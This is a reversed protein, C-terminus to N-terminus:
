LEALQSLVIAFHRSFGAQRWTTANGTGADGSACELIFKDGWCFDANPPPKAEHIAKRCVKRIYEFGETKTSRGKILLWDDKQTIRLQTSISVIRPDIEVLNPHQIAYDSFGIVPMKTSSRLRLFMHWDERPITLATDKQLSSLDTPFSTASVFVSRWEDLFPLQGLLVKALKANRPASRHQIPIPYLRYKALCRRRARRV